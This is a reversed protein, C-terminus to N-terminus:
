ARSYKILMVFCYYLLLFSVFFIESNGIRALGYHHYLAGGSCQSVVGQCGLGVGTVRGRVITPGQADQRVM